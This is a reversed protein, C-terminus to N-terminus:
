INIGIKFIDSFLDTSNYNIYLNKRSYKFKSCPSKIPVYRWLFTKEKIFNIDNCCFMYYCLRCGLRDCENSITELLSLISMM